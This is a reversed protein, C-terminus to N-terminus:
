QEIFVIFHRRNSRRAGVLVIVHANDALMANRLIATTYIQVFSAFTSCECHSRPKVDRTRRRTQLAHRAIFDPAPPFDYNTERLQPSNSHLFSRVFSHIVLQVFHSGPPYTTMPLLMEGVVPSWFARPFIHGQSPRIIHVASLPPHRGATCKANYRRRSPKKRRQFLGFWCRSQDDLSRRKCSQLSSAVPWTNCQPAAQPRNEVEGRGVDTAQKLTTSVHSANDNHGINVSQVTAAFM